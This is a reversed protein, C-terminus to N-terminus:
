VVRFHAMELDLPFFYPDRHLGCWPEQYGPNVLGQVVSSKLGCTLPVGLSLKVDPWHSISAVDYTQVVGVGWWAIWVFIDICYSCNSYIIQIKLSHHEQCALVGSCMVASASTCHRHPGDTIEGCVSGETCWSILKKNAQTKGRRKKFKHSFHCCHRIPNNTQIEFCVIEVCGFSGNEPIKICSKLM